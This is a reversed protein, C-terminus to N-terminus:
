EKKTILYRMVPELLSLNHELEHIAAPPMQSEILVYQGELKKRIPYALPRKGWIDTKGIKGGEDKIWGQVREVIETFATSELDPHVIFVLEYDRM